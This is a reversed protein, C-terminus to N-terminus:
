IAAKPHASGNHCTVCSVAPTKGNLNKVDVKFFKKNIKATMKLMDRAWGKEPKADSAFDLHAGDASPAHCFNCKVGLSANFNKMIAELQEHTTNKPLVKFNHKPEEQFSSAGVFIALAMVVIVSFSRLRFLKM